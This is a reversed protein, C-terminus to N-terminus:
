SRRYERKTSIVERQTHHYYTSLGTMSRLNGALHLVMTGVIYGRGFKDEFFLVLQGSTLRGEYEFVRRGGDKTDRYIVARVFAGRQAIEMRSNPETPRDEQFSYGTWTGSLDPASAALTADSVFDLLLRPRRGFRQIAQKITTCAPGLAAELNGDARSRYTAASIGLLDSPLKLKLGSDFVFFSRDQRLHGMFLGLEFIVNDRPSPLEEGRSISLDDANCILVAFDMADLIKILSELASRSLSFVGQSWLTTDAISRLGQQLAEAVTVSESSSGIFVTPLQEM